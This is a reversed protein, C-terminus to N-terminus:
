APMRSLLKKNHDSDWPENLRFEKYLKDEGLFPLLHVRWSQLGKGQLDYSAAPPLSELGDRPAAPRRAPPKRNESGAPAAALPPPMGGLVHRLAPGLTSKLMAKREAANEESVIGIVVADNRQEVKAGGLAKEFKDYVAGAEPLAGMRVMEQKLNPL